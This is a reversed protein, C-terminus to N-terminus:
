RSFRPAGPVAIRSRTLERPVSRSTVSIRRSSSHLGPEEHVGDTVRLGALRPDARMLATFGLAEARRLWARASSRRGLALYAAAVNVAEGADATTRLRFTRLLAEGARAQGARVRAYAISADALRCRCIRRLARLDNMAHADRGDAIDVLAELYLLDGHAPALDHLRGAYDRAAPDDRNVYALALLWSLTSVSIPDLALATRLERAGAELQGGQVLFTGYWHHALPDRPAATVAARLEAGAKARSDMRAADVLGMALQADASLPELRRAADAERRARRLAAPGDAAYGYQALLVHAVAIGASGSASRPDSRAVRTFYRVSKALSDRSRLALYYRASRLDAAGSPSLTTVALPRPPLVVLALAATVAACLAAIRAGARAIRGSAARPQVVRDAVPESAARPLPGAYRYGRRALTEVLPEGLVPGLVKRLLYVSQTLNGDEVFEGPWVADLLEQRSVVEHPRACLALLVGVARPGLPLTQGGHMVLRNAVDVALTGLSLVEQPRREGGPPVSSMRKEELLDITNPM